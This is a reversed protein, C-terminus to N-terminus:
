SYCRGMKAMALLNINYRKQIGSIFKILDLNCFWSDSLLYEAWFGRKLASKLMNMLSTTKKIDAELVKTAGTTQADRQKSLQESMQKKTLGYEPHKKRAEKLEGRLEIAKNKLDYFVNSSCELGHKQM